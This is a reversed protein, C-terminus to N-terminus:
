FTVNVGFIVQKATPYTGMDIGQSSSSNASATEPDLGFYKTITIFNELSAFVRMSNIFAKNVIDKPLTYGLQIQKIKFYDGKFLTMDSSFANRDWNKITPFKSGSNEYFWAYNNCYPRDTRWAQPLIKGGAVGNGFITLDVGKYDMNITLGYTVKPLGTGLDTMDNADWVGDGNVDVFNATGDAKLGDTKYGYFYWMSHGVACRTTMDSGQLSAGGLHDVTPDLYTVENKNTAFNANVSYHFGDIIEDKWGLEVEVGTNEVEGANIVQDGIGTELVPKVHVLWDKTTKKYWDFGISLRSDLLRADLGLDLQESQEWKLDPNPLGNPVSTYTPTGAVSYQYFDENLNLIASYPYGGLVNINGNIGWSGRLKLFSLISTDINDKIFSENSLTWGGSFSYFKGWREEAPLKSSDFADARFNAQVSYKNDFSYNIRGFYSM